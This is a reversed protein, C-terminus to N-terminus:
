RAEGLYDKLAPHPPDGDRANGVAEYVADAVAGYVAGSVAGDVDDRVAGAVDINLARDAAWDVAGNVLANSSKLNDM